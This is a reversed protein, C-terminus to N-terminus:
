SNLLHWVEESELPDFGHLVYWLFIMASDNVGREFASINTFSTGLEIAIDLQTIGKERRWDGAARGITKLAYRKNEKEM